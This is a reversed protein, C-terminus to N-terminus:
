VSFVEIKTMKLILTDNVLYEKGEEPKYLDSHSIFNPYGWGDDRIDGETVREFNANSDKDILKREYPKGGEKQNVLEVTIEGKLPWKLCSDFEGKMMYFAVGVHTTTGESVWGNASVGLCMKYGGFHTYFADSRWVTGDIRYKKFNSMVIKFPLLFPSIKGVVCQLNAVDSKLKKCESVIMEFHEDKNIDLHRQLLDRKLKVQCGAFSYKCPVKQLAPCEEQLHRQLFQREIKDEISCQNPCVLPFRKCVPWHNNIIAKHTSVEDCYICAFQRNECEKSKHSRLNCRQVHKGCQSPCMVRVFDCNGEVSGLDLHGELEELNGEWECGELKNTCRVRLQKVRRKLQANEVTNLPVKNCIPCSKGAAQNKQATARSLNKWCCSTRVPDLLLNRTVTCFLDAPPKGVFDFDAM